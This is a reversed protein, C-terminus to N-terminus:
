SSRRRPVLRLRRRGLFLAAPLLLLLRAGGPLASSAGVECGCGKDSSLKACDGEATCIEGAACQTSSTCRTGKGDPRPAGSESGTVGDMRTAATGDKVASGDPAPGSRADAKLGGDPFPGVAPCGVGLGPPAPCGTQLYLSTLGDIDDQSLVRRTTDGFNAGPFMVAGPTTSAVLGIAQGVLYTLINQVDFTTANGGTANWAYTFANVAVSVHSMNGVTDSQFSEHYYSSTAVGAPWSSPNTVWYVNIHGTFQTYPVSSIAFPPDKTFTLRSCPVTGWTQFAQDIAGLLAQDTLTDSVRYKVPLNGWAAAKSAGPFAQLCYGHAAQTLGLVGICTILVLPIRM